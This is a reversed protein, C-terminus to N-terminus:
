CTKRSHSQSSWDEYSSGQLGSRSKPRSRGTMRRLKVSQKCTRTLRQKPEAERCDTCVSADFKACYSVDRCDTCFSEDCKACYRIECFARFSGCKGCNSDRCKTCFGEDCKACFSADCMACDSVERCVTCFRKDCKACPSVDRCDACFSEDCKACYRVERCVTCFSKDCEDCECFANCFTCFSGCNGCCEDRCDSCFGRDCKACPSGEFCDTCFSEGCKACYSATRCDNCFETNCGACWSMSVGGAQNQCGSCLTKKCIQCTGVDSCSRCFAQTCVHCVPSVNICYDCYSLACKGCRRVRDCAECSADGCTTCERVAVSCSSTRCFFHLCYSCRPSPVGFWNPVIQRLENAIADQCSNCKTKHQQARQLLTARLDRTFGANHSSKHLRVMFLKHPVTTRLIDVLHANIQEAWYWHIRLDVSELVRSHRLSELGIGRLRHCDRLSLRKTVERANVRTLLSSLTEDTISSTRTYPVKSFDINEWLPSCDEGYVLHRLTRSLCAFKVRTPLDVYELTHVM